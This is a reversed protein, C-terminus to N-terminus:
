RIKLVQTSSMMDSLTQKKATFAAMLGSILGIISLNYLVAGLVGRAAATGWGLKSDPGQGAKVTKLGLALQGLTAGITGLMITRYAAYLVLGVLTSYLTATWFEAGPMPPDGVGGDAWIMLERLWRDTEVSLAANIGMVGGVIGSLISILINDLIFGLLRWGFAAPRPGEPSAARYSLPTGYGQPYPQQGYGQGYGQQPQQWQQAQPATPAPAVDRTAQSWAVGDWFREADTGAPDPYWGAPPQQPANTM